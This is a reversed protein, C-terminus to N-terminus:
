YVLSARTVILFTHLECDVLLMYCDSCDFLWFVLLWFALFGFGFVWLRLKYVYIWFGLIKPKNGFGILRM